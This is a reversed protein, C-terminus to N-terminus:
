LEHTWKQLCKQLQFGYFTQHHFTHLLNVQVVHICFHYKFKEDRSKCWIRLNCHTETPVRWIAATNFTYAESFIRTQVKSKPVTIVFHKKKQTRLLTVERFTEELITRWYSSWCCLIWLNSLAHKSEASLIHKHWSWNSM